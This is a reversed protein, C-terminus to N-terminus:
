LSTVRRNRIGSALAAMLRQDRDYVDPRFEVSGDADVFVTWYLIYIPLPESLPFYRTRGAAVASALLSVSTDDGTLAFSALPLIKEVRVCGHSLDRDDRAFLKKGPTDHLYVNFRNPLDLKLRGLANRGGPRQQLGGGARWVMNHARLYGPNAREKPLIEKRAIKAPINWPPNAVVGLADARLIPTEDGPRGVIVPSTFVLNGNQVVALKAEPVNVMVYRDEFGRPLWRWREMNAEVQLARQSAPVNLAALTEHDLSGTQDLGHRKQYREIADALESSDDPTIAADEAALRRLLEARAKGHRGFTGAVLTPWGGQAIAANYVALAAKLRAYEPHPPALGGLFASLTRSQLAANMDKGADFYDAPLEVDADIERLWPRGDRLDNAYRLAANTLLVDKEADLYSGAAGYGVIAVVRYDIPNLGDANAQELAAQLTQGDGDAEPSGTWAPADGRQTYFNRLAVLEAGDVGQISAQALYSRIASRPDDGTAGLCASSWAVGVVFWAVIWRRLM